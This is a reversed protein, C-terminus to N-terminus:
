ILDVFLGFYILPYKFHQYYYEILMIITKSKFLENNYSKSLAKFFEYGERDEKSENNIWGIEFARLDIPFNVENKDRDEGM